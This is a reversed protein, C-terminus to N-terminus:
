RGAPAMGSRASSGPQAMLIMVPAGTGGPQSATTGTSSVSSDPAGLSGPTGLAGATQTSPHFGTNPKSPCLATDLFYVEGASASDLAGLIHLLTSKGAGSQGVIGLMEGADIQFSLNDFLVLDSNGSRYVKRLGEVRLLADKEMPHM